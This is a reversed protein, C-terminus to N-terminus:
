TCTPSSFAPHTWHIKMTAPACFTHFNDSLPLTISFILTLGCFVKSALGPSSLKRGEAQSPIPQSMSPKQAANSVSRQEVNCKIQRALPSGSERSYCKELFTARM